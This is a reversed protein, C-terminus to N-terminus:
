PKRTTLIPLYIRFTTGQDPQSQVDIYGQHEAIIKHTVALGLGSGHEKTTYFPEFVHQLADPPIGAGTDGVEILLAHQCGDPFSEIDPLDATAIKRTTICLRGGEPMSDIANLALNLLMQLFQDGRGCLAPLEPTLHREVSIDHRKLTGGILLLVREILTNIHISATAALPEPAHYLDKLQHLIKGIREIESQAVDLFAHQEPPTHAQLSELSFLITQLPSNVEHAVIQSLRRNAVLRENEVMLIEMGLKETVDVIHLVVRGLGPDIHAVPSDEPQEIPLAQMDFVRTTKDVCSIRTRQTRSQGDHLTERIWTVPFLGEAGHGCSLHHRCVQELSAGVLTKPTQGLLAAMAQNVALVQGRQDLLLLGDQMADFIARLLNRSNLLQDTMQQQDQAAHELADLAQNMARALHSLEDHGVVSLRAEPKDYVRVVDTNLRAMRAFVLRELLLLTVTGFVLGAIVIVLLMYSLSAQGQAYVDRPTTVRLLLAPQGGIDMYAAYGAIQQEDLPQVLIPMQDALLSQAHQIDDPTQAANWPYAALDLGTLTGLRGIEASNLFRGFVLTGVIPGYDSSSIPYAVLLTPTDDLLVVGTTGISPEHHHFLDPYLALYDYVTPAVPITQGGPLDIARAFVLHDASDYFLMLNLRLNTFTEPMLNDAVYDPNTGQVFDRTANWAAWDDATRTLGDLERELANLVRQMHQRTQQEELTTYNDMLMSSLFVYLVILLGVLTMSLALLTKSRLTMADIV